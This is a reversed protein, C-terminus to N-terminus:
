TGITRMLKFDIYQLEKSQILLDLSTAICNEGVDESCKWFEGVENERVADGRDKAEKLVRDFADKEKTLKTKIEVAKRRIPQMLLCKSIKEELKEGRKRWDQLADNSSFCM